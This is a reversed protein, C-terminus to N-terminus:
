MTLYKPTRELWEANRERTTGSGGSSVVACRKAIQEAWRRLPQAEPRKSRTLCWAAEVLLSRMRSNGAKTIHGRQQREGSSYERPVLGLYSRVQRATDFREVRDVVAVFMGATIPGVGPVTALRQAVADEKMREALRRDAAAIQANFVAMVTLLPAIEERLHDPLGVQELREVFKAASGPPIRYGERRVLAGILSIYKSRSFVLAERVRLEAREHRRQPPPRHASRYAGLRCAECLARADRRDTKVHRSRTAYMPAFNPDAVIVEHGFGELCQAVWESETSAEIVIRAPERDAFSAAFADRNSRVRFEEFSESDETACVHSTSKHVDIGIYKM